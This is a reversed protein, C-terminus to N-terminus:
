HMFELFKCVVAVYAIYWSILRIDLFVCTKGKLVAFSGIKM